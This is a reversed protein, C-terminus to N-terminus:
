RIELRSLLLCIMCTFNYQGVEQYSRFIRNKQFCTNTRNNVWVLALMTPVEILVGVVTALAAGSDSGYLSVAIAVAIEFFNSCAILTAPGAIKYPLKMRLALFYTLGWILFTQLLLPIAIIFIDLVNEVITTAQSMFLLVVMLLLFVMSCRDLTPILTDNLWAFWKDNKSMVYRIFVGLVLPIFAFIGVSYVLVDWPMSIDSAGALLKVTPVYVFLLIIDNVAVQTVTYAPDGDMLMSWVFVMATCPAGGLLIAGTLYEDAKTDGLYNGFIVHFFLLAIGYMTFPQVAYNIFSTLAVPKPNKIVNVVNSFDIQIMMPLIMGWLLIAIPISIEAITAKDLAEPIEPVYYGILVGAIMALLVWLSLFKQFLNLKPPKEVTPGEADATTMALEEDDTPQISQTLDEGDATIAREEVATSTSQIPQSM